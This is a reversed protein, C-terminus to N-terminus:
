KVQKINDDVCIDVISIKNKPELILLIAWSNIYVDNTSGLKNKVELILLDGDCEKLIGRIVEKQRTEFDFYKRSKGSDGLYVEVTKNKLYPLLAELYGKHKM